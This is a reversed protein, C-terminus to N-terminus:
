TFVHCSTSQAEARVNQLVGFVLSRIIVVQLVCVWYFLVDLCM